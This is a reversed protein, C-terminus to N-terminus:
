TTVNRRRAALLAAGGLSTVLLAILAAVGTGNSGTVPLGAAPITAVPAPATTTPAQTPPLVAVVETPPQTPPLAVVVETPPTTPLVTTPPVTTEPPTTPCPFQEDKTLDRTRSEESKTAGTPDLVWSRTDFDWIYPTTVVIRTQKVMNDGCDFKGDWEGPVVKAPPQETPPCETKNLENVTAERIKQSVQVEVGPVWTGDQYVFPTSYNTDTREVAECDIVTTTRTNAPPVCPGQEQETLPRSVNITVETSVKVWKFGELVWKFTITRQEGNVTNAGVVCEGYKTTVKPPVPPPQPCPIQEGDVFQKDIVEWGEGAPPGATEPRWDSTKITSSIVYSGVVVYRYQASEPGYDGSGHLGPGRNRGDDNLPGAGPWDAWPGWESWSADTGPIAPIAPIGPTGAKRYFWSGNGNGQQYVGDPGAHGGPIDKNEHNWTGREDTPWSPPGQFTKQSENPSFNQWIGGVAPVAPVGPTGETGEIWTRSRTEKAIVDGTVVVTRQYKLERVQEFCARPGEDKVVATATGSTLALGGALMAAVALGGLIRKNM